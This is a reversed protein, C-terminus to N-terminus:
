RERGLNKKTCDGELQKAAFYVCVCLFLLCATLFTDTSIACRFFFKSKGKTTSLKAFCVKKYSRFVCVPM